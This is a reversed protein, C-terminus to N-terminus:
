DTFFKLIKRLMKFYVKLIDSLNVDLKENLDELQNEAEKVYDSANM